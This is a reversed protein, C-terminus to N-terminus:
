EKINGNKQNNYHKIFEVIAAYVAKLLTEGECFFSEHEIDDYRMCAIDCSSPTTSCEPMARMYVRWDWSNLKEVVPMLWDWSEHYKAYPFSDSRNGRKFFRSPSGGLTIWSEFDYGMFDAILKNNDKIYDM